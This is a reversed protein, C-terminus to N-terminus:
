SQHSSDNKRSHFLHELPSEGLIHRNIQDALCVGAGMAALATLLRSWFDLHWPESIYHWVELTYVAVIFYEITEFVRQMRTISQVNDQLRQGQIRGIAAASVDRVSELMEELGSDALFRHLAASDAQALALKVDTLRRLLAECRPAVDAENHPGRLDMLLREFDAVLQMAQLFDRRLPDTQQYSGSKVAVAVGRRTWVQVGHRDVHANHRLIEEASTAGAEPHLASYCIRGIQQAVTECQLDVGDELATRIFIRTGPAPPAVTTLEVAPTSRVDPPSAGGQIPVHMFEFPRVFVSSELEARAIRAIPDDSLDGAAGPPGILTGRNASVIITCDYNHGDFWPDDFFRADERGSAQGSRGEFGIRIPGTVLEPSARLARVEEAQLRAWLSYIHRGGAREPALSLFYATTNLPADEREGSYAIATFDFGGGLSSSERDERAWEKFLLCEPDRLFVGDAARRTFQRLGWHAPQVGDDTGFLSQEQLQPFWHQFPEDSHQLFVISKRARALDRRYAVEEHDLLAREPAFMASSELVSDFLPNLQVAAGAASSTMCAVVERFFEVAGTALYGRGRKMAAYLLSHLRRQRECALHRCGDVNAAYSALLLPWQREVPLHGVRPNFWDFRRASTADLWGDSHLGYAAWGEAPIEGELLQRVLFMSCFADFDPDRHTVLWVVDPRPSFRENLRGAAHLVATAAAPFQGEPRTFHHDLVVAGHGGGWYAGGVDVAVENEYLRTPNTESEPRAGSCATFATGYAVYRYRTEM